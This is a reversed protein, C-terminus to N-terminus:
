LDPSIQTKKIGSQGKITVCFIPTNEFANAVPTSSPFAVVICSIPTPETILTNRLKNEGTLARRARKPTRQIMNKPLIMMDSPRIRAPKLVSIQCTYKVWPMRKPKPHENTYM